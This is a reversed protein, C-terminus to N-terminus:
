RREAAKRAAEVVAERLRSWVYPAHALFNARAEDRTALWEWAPLGAKARNCDVCSTVVNGRSNDGGKVRPQVHDM